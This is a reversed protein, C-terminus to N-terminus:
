GVGAALARWLATFKKAWRVGNIRDSDRTNPPLLEKFKVGLIEEYNRLTKWSHLVRLGDHGVLRGVILAGIAAEVVEVSGEYDKWAKCITMIDDEGILKISEEPEMVYIRSPKRM